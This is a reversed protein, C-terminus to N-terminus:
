KAKPTLLFARGKGEHEGTGVIVGNDNIGNAEELSWHAEAPVTRNLDTMRGREYFFACQSTGSASEAEGVVQGRGNLHAGVINPYGALDGLDTLVGGALLFGHSSAGRRGLCVIDGRDNIGTAEELAWASGSPLFCNLDTVVGGHFLFAHRLGRLTGSGVIDGAGNIGDAEQLTWGSGAASEDLLAVRGARYIFARSQDRLTLVAGVVQGAANIGSSLYLAGGGPRLDRVTNAQATFAHVILAPRASKDAPDPRTAVGAVVGADSIANGVGDTFGPLTGLDTMRGESYLFAHSFGTGHRIEGTVQGKENVAKASSGTYGAPLGLDSLIYAQALLPRAAFLLLLVPFVRM